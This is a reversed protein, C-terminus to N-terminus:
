GGHSKIVEMIQAATAPAAQSHLPRGDSPELIFMFPLSSALPKLQEVLKSPQGDQDVSDDDLIELKHGKAKIYSANEGSRLLNWARAQEPTDDSTERLIVIHRKGVPSPGAGLEAVIKPVEVKVQELTKGGLRKVIAATAGHAELNADKLLVEETAEFLELSDISGAKLGEDLKAYVARVEPADKGALEALTVPKPPVVPDPGVGVEITFTHSDEYFNVGDSVTCELTWKGPLYGIEIKRPEDKALRFLPVVDGAGIFRWRIAKGEGGKAEFDIFQGLKIEVPGVIELLAPVTPEVAPVVVVPPMPEQALVPYSALLLWYCTALVWQSVEKSTKM